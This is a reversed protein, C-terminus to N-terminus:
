YQRNSHISIFSNIFPYFFDVAPGFLILMWINILKEMCLHITYVNVKNMIYYKYVIINSGYTNYASLMYLVYM